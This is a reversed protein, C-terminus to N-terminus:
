VGGAYNRAPDRGDTGGPAPQDAEGNEQTSEGSNPTSVQRPLILAGIMASAAFIGAAVGFAASFGAALAAHSAGHQTGTHAAAVSALIALGLAGGVQRSTNLLGSALGGQGPPLGTTAAAMIPAFMLGGGAMALCAPVIVAWLGGSPTLQTLWAAGGAATLGGTLFLPRTDVRAIVKFSAQTGAAVALSMPLFVLGAQLVTYGRVDQLYLTLFFWIAMVPLFSLFSLANGTSVLRSRFVSFPVLPARAVRTEVLAFVGLLAAGAALAGAM